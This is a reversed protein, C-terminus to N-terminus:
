STKSERQIFNDSTSIRIDNVDLKGNCMTFDALNIPLKDILLIFRGNSTIRAM